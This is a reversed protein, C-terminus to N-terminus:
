IPSTASIIDESLAHFARMSRRHTGLRHERLWWLGFIAIIGGIIGAIALPTISFGPSIVEVADPGPLIIQFGDDHPPELSYQTALGTLRVHQGARIHLERSNTRRPLFVSITNNRDALEFTKGGLNDAVRSVTASTRVIFGLNRFGNLDTITVEKPEPPAEHKMRRIASPVLMPAGAIAELTADVDVWDGPFFPGGLQKLQNEDVRLVIGHDSADRLPLYWTDLAWIPDAAVQGRVTIARGDYAPNLDPGTRSAAQELSLIQSSGSAATLLALCIIARM